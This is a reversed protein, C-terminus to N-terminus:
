LKEGENKEKLENPMAIPLVSDNNENISISTPLSIAKPNQDKIISSKEEKESLVPLIFLDKTDKNAKTTNSMKESIISIFHSKEIADFVTQQGDNLLPINELFKDEGGDSDLLIPKAPKLQIKSIKNKMPNNSLVKGNKKILIDGGDFGVIPNYDSDLISEDEEIHFLGQGWGLIPMDAEGNNKIFLIHSKGIDLKPTGHMCMGEVGIVKGKVETEGGKYRIQVMKQLKNKGSKTVTYAESISVITYVEGNKNKKVKIKKVIGEIIHDSENVLNNFNQYLVTTANASISLVIALSLM